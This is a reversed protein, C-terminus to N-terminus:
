LLQSKLFPFILASALAAVVGLYARVFREIKVIRIEYASSAALLSSYAVLTFSIPVHTLAGALAAAAVTLNVALATRPRVAALDLVWKSLSLGLYAGAATAVLTSSPEKAFLAVNNLGFLYATLFLSPATLRRGGKLLKCLPYTVAAFLPSTIWLLASHASLGTISYAAVALPVSIKLLTLSVYLATLYAFEAPGLQIPRLPSTAAGLTIGALTILYAKRFGLGAGWASPGLLVLSNNYILLVALVTAYIDM